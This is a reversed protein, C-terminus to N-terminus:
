LLVQNQADRGFRWADSLLRTHKWKLSSNCDYLFSGGLRLFGRM